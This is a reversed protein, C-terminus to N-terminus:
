RETYINVGPPGGPGARAAVLSGPRPIYVRTPPRGAAPLLEPGPPRSHAPRLFCRSHASRAWCQTMRSVAPLSPGSPTCVQESGPSPHPSPRPHSCGSLAEQPLRQGLQSECPTPLPSSSFLSHQTPPPAQAFAQPHTPRTCSLDM